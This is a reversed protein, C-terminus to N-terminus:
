GIPGVRHFDGIARLNGRVLHLEIPLWLAVIALAFRGPRDLLGRGDPSGWAVIAIPFVGYLAVTGVVGPALNQSAAYSAYLALAIMFLAGVRIAPAPALWAALGARYRDVSLALCPGFYVAFMACAGVLGAGRAGSSLAFRGFAAVAVAFIAAATAVEARHRRAAADAEPASGNM